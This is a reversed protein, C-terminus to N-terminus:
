PEFIVVDSSAEKLLSTQIEAVADRRKITELAALIEPKAQEFTRLEVPKRATVEALHWGLRSRILTPKNIELSFLPAAFDVPLRDYSMWGLAGGSGKTAPDESLEKALTAFDKKKETLALLAEDLKQKAEEPPHDLTPIFIHRVEVRAPNALDERNEEFWKRAEEDTVIIQPAIRWEIFKEQQIRAALRNKLDDESHIGQSKMATELAGKTEFRGLLRRLRENTEEPSVLPPKEEAKIRARLIEHCILEDLAAKRDAPTLEKATKGELWLKEELARDLQSRTITQGFVNAVVGNSKARAISAASAPDLLEIQHRIPGHFIMLDGALYIAAIGCLALRIPFRGTASM